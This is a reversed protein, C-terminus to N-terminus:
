PTASAPIDVEELSAEIGDSLGREAMRRAEGENGIALENIGGQIAAVAQLWVITFAIVVISVPWGAPPTTTTLRSFLYVGVVIFVAPVRGDRWTLPSELWGKVKAVLEVQNPLWLFMAFAAGAPIGVLACNLATDPLNGTAHLLLGVGVGVVMGALMVAPGRPDAGQRRLVGDARLMWALLFVVSPLVFWLLTASHIAVWHGQLRVYPASSALHANLQTATRVLVYALYLAPGAACPVVVKAVRTYSEPLKGVAAIAKARQALTRARAMDLLSKRTQYEVIGEPHRAYTLAGLGFLILFLGPTLHLGDELLWQFLVFSLGANVAGDVTRSGLTVVLVVWAIGLITPFTPTQGVRADQAVMAILAGGVGAVGASLAFSTVRL